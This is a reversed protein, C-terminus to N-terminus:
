SDHADIRNQDSPIVRHDHNTQSQILSSLQLPLLAKHVASRYGAQCNAAFLHPHSKRVVVQTPFPSNELHQVMNLLQTCYWDVLLKEEQVTLFDIDDEINASLSGNQHNEADGNESNPAKDENNATPSTYRAIERRRKIAKRAQEKALKNTKRRLAALRDTTFNWLRYQTSSRYLEDETVM